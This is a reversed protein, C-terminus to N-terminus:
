RLHLNIYTQKPINFALVFSIKQINQTKKKKLKRLM